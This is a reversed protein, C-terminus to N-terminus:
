CESKAGTNSFLTRPFWLLPVSLIRGDTLFVQMAEETFEVANALATTPVYVRSLKPRTALISMGAEVFQAQNKTVLREIENLERARFGHNTALRVPELWFKAENAGAKIHIHSPEQNENSFFLFRYSGIQMVTPMPNNYGLFSEVRPEAVFCALRPHVDFCAVPLPYLANINYCRTQGACQKTADLSNAVVQVILAIPIHSIGVTSVFAEVIRADSGDRTALWLPLSICLFLFTALGWLFCVIGSKGRKNADMMVWAGVLLALMGGFIAVSQNDM